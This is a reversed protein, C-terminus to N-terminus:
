RIYWKLIQDKIMKAPNPNAACGREINKHFSCFCVSKWQHECMIMLEFLGGCFCAFIGQVLMLTHFLIFLGAAAHGPWPLKGWAGSCICVKEKSERKSWVTENQPTVSLWAIGLLRLNHFSGQGCATLPSLHRPYIASRTCNASMGCLRAIQTTCYLFPEHHAISPARLIALDKMEKVKAWSQTKPKSEPSHKQRKITLKTKHRQWHIVLPRKRSKLKFTQKNRRFRSLFGAQTSNVQNSCYSTM